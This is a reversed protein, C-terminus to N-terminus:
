LLFVELLKSVRWGATMLFILRQELFHVIEKINLIGQKDAEEGHGCLDPNGGPLPNIKVCFFVLFFKM